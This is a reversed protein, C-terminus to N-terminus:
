GRASHLYHAAVLHGALVRATLETLRTSRVREVEGCVEVPREGVVASPCLRDRRPGFTTASGCATGVDGEVRGGVASDEHLHADREHTDDIGFCIDGCLIRTPRM